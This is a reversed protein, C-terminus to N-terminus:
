RAWVMTSGAGSDGLEFTWWTASTSNSFYPHSVFSSGSSVLRRSPYAAAFAPGGSPEGWPRNIRWRYPPDPAWRGSLAYAYDAFLESGTRSCSAALGPTSTLLYHINIPGASFSRRGGSFPCTELAGGLTHFSAVGQLGTIRIVHRIGDAGGDFWSNHEYLTGATTTVSAYVCDGVGWCDSDGCDTAGDDENDLGDTCDLEACAAGASCDADECDVLGDCDQELGDDCIEEAEPFRAPDTDDCDSDNDAHGDPAVCGVVPESTPAGAGDGDLDPWFPISDIADEDILDDCDDDLENCLEDAGPHVTPSDDDCDDANDAWGEAGECLQESHTPTGFGDSDADAYWRTAAGVTPDGDDCDDDALVGDGDADYATPDDTGDAGSDPPAASASEAPDPKPAETCAFVGTFTGVLLAIEPRM